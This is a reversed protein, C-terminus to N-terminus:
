LKTKYLIHVFYKCKGSFFSTSNKKERVKRRKKLKKLKEVGVGKMERLTKRGRKRKREMGGEMGGGEKLWEMGEGGTEDKM